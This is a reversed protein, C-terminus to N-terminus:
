RGQSSQDNIYLFLYNIKDKCYICFLNDVVKYFVKEKFVHLVILLAPIYKLYMNASLECNELIFFLTQKTFKDNNWFLKKGIIKKGIIKYSKVFKPFQKKFNLSYRESLIISFSSKRILNM